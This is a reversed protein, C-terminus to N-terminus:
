SLPEVTLAYDARGCQHCTRREVRLGDQVIALQASDRVLKEPEMLVGALCPVCYAGPHGARVVASIREALTAGDSGGRIEAPM